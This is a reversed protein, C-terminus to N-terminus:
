DSGSTAIDKSISITCRSSSLSIPTSVIESSRTSSEYRRRPMAGPSTPTLMSRSATPFPACRPSSNTRKKEKLSEASLGKGRVVNGVKVKLGRYRKRVFTRCLKAMDAPSDGYVNTQLDFETRYAGGLLEYVPCEYAKGAIDHLAIDIAARAPQCAPPHAGSVSDMRRHADVRDLPDAGDLAKAYGRLWDLLGNMTQHFYVTGAAAEGLGSIGSDTEIRVIVTSSSPLATSQNAAYGPKVAKLRLPFAQLGTIRM